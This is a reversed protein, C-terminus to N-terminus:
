QQAALQPSLGRKIRLQAAADEDKLTTDLWGILDNM